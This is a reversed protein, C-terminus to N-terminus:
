ARVERGFYWPCELWLDAYDTSKQGPRATPWVCRGGVAEAAEKGRRVGPNDARDNDPGHDNDAYVIIPVDPYRHRLNLCVPLLNECSMAAAVACGFGMHIAIATAVGECVAICGNLHGLPWYAGTLALGTQYCKKGTPSITQYGVVGHGDTLFAVLDPGLQRLGLPELGKDATYAHLPDAWPIRPKLEQAEVAAQRNRRAEALREEKRKRAARQRARRAKERQEETQQRGEDEALVVLHKDRGWVGFVARDYGLVRAFGDEDKKGPPKFRKWPGTGRLQMTAGYEERMADDLATDISHEAAPKTIISDYYTSPKGQRADHAALQQSFAAHVAWAGTPKPQAM